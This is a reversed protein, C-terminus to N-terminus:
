VCEHPKFYLRIYITELHALQPRIDDLLEKHNSWSYGVCSHGVKEGADDSDDDDDYHDDTTCMVVLSAELVRAESLNRHDNQHTDDLRCHDRLVVVNCGGRADWYERAFQRNVLLLEVAPRRVIMHTYNTKDNTFRRPPLEAYAIKEEALVPQAYIMDRPERALRFFDFYSEKTAGELSAM